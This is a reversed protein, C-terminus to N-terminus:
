IAKKSNFFNYSDADEAYSSNIVRQNRRQDGLKVDAWTKKIWDFSLEKLM